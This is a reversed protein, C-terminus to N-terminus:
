WSWVGFAIANPTKYFLFAKVSLLLDNKGKLSHITPSFGCLLHGFTARSRHPHFRKSYDVVALETIAKLSIGQRIPTSYLDPPVADIRGSIGHM